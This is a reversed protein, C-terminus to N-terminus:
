LQMFFISFYQTAWTENLAVYINKFVISNIKKPPPPMIKTKHIKKHSVLEMKIAQYMYTLAFFIIVPIVPLVM